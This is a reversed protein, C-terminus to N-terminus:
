DDAVSKSIRLPEGGHHLLRHDNSYLAVELTAGAPLSPLHVWPGYLRAVKRGDVHLHAHGEGERHAEGASEPAFRFSTTAVHVNWGSTEDRTVTLELGPKPRDPDLEIAGGHGRHPDVVETASSPAAPVSPISAGTATAVFFGCGAGVVLGLGLDVVSRKM